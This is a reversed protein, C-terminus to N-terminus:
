ASLELLMAQTDNLFEQYEFVKGGPMQVGVIIVTYKNGKNSTKTEIRANVVKLTKVTDKM